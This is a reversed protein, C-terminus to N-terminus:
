TDKEKCKIWDRDYGRKEEQIGSQLQCKGFKSIPSVCRTCMRNVEYSVLPFWDLRDQLSSDCQGIMQSLFITNSPALYFYSWDLYTHIPERWFTGVVEVCHLWVSNMFVNQSLGNASPISLFSVSQRKRPFMFCFLSLELLRHWKDQHWGSNYKM